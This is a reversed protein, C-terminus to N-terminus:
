FDLSVKWARMLKVKENENITNNFIFILETNQIVNKLKNLFRFLVNPVHIENYKTKSIKQCM